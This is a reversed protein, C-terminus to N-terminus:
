FPLVLLPVAHSAEPFFLIVDPQSQSSSQADQPLCTLTLSKASIKSKQWNTFIQWLFKHGKGGM